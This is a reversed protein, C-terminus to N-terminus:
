KGGGGAVKFSTGEDREVEVTVHIGGRDQTRRKGSPAQGSGQWVQFDSEEREKGGEELGKLEYM